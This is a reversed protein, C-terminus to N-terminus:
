GSDPHLHCSVSSLPNLYESNNEILFHHGGLFWSPLWPNTWVIAHVVLGYCYDTFFKCWFWDALNKVCARVFGALVPKVPDSSPSMRARTLYNHVRRATVVHKSNCSKRVTLIKMCTWIQAYKSGNERVTVTFNNSLTSFCSESM